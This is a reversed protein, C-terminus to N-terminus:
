ISNADQNKMEEFFLTDPKTKLIKSIKFAMDYTLRRKGKEIQWIYVRSVGLAQAITDRSINKSERFEQLKRREM